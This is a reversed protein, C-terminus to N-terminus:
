ICGRNCPTASPSCSARSGPRGAKIRAPARAMVKNARESRDADWVVDLCDTGSLMPMPTHQLAHPPAIWATDVDFCVDRGERLLWIIMEAKSVGDRPVGGDGM